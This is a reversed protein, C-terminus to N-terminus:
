NGNHDGKDLAFKAPKSYGYNFHLVLSPLQERKWMHLCTTPFDVAQSMCIDFNLVAM